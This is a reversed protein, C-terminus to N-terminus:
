YAWGSPHLDPLPRDLHACSWSGFAGQDLHEVLRYQRQVKNHAYAKGVYQIRGLLMNAYGRWSAMAITTHFRRRISNKVADLDSALMSAGLHKYGYEVAISIMKRVNSSIEGYTGFALGQFDSRSFISELPGKAGEQIGFHERDKQRMKDRYEKWIQKQRHQAAAGGKPNDRASHHEYAGGAAKPHITKVEWLHNIGAPFRECAPGEIHGDPVYHRLQKCLLPRINSTATAREGARIRHTFYDPVELTSQIGAQNFVRHVAYKIEDHHKRHGDGPLVVKCLNTGYPDCPIPSRTGGRSRKQPISEGELGALCSKKLGFYQQMAARFQEPQLRHCEMPIAWILSSSSQDVQYWARRHEDSIERNALEQQLLNARSSDLVQALSRQTAMADEHTGGEQLVGNEEGATAESGSDGPISGDEGQSLDSLAVQEDGPRSSPAYRGRARAPDPDALCGLENQLTGQSSETSLGANARAEEHMTQWARKFAEPYPGLHDSALFQEQRHGLPDYAGEGIADKLQTHYAGRIVTGEDANPDVRDICKPLIDLLAGVFAPRRLDWAKKVGGGKCRAPLQLRTQAVNDGLFEAATAAQVARLVSADVAEALQATEDPTMNRLWYTIKHQLSYYIMSWLEQPYEDALSEVYMASLEDVQMAKEALVAEVFKPEGLPVNFVKIGKCVGGDPCTLSGEKLGTPYGPIWKLAEWDQGPSYGKCKAINLRNGTDEEVEAAFTAIAQFVVHAPGEFYGDDMGFRACGGHRALTADAKQVHPHITLAHVASSTPSGQQTGEDSWLVEEDAWLPTRPGLKARLYPIYRRLTPHEMHRKMIAQRWISNFANELDITVVIHDSNSALTMRIGMVLLEASHKVGVGLQQPALTQVYENMMDKLVAKDVAKSFSEPCAVPRYDPTGGDEPIKKVLAVLNSAQLARMFWPDLRDNVMDTALGNMLELARAASSPAFIGQLARMHTNRLGSPGCAANPDLKAIIGSIDVQVEETTQYSYIDEGIQRQRTPHKDVMQQKVAPDAFDGRGLSELARAGKAIAGKRILRVGKAVRAAEDRLSERSAASLRQQAAGAAKRWDGILTGLDRVRWLRFRRRMANLKRTGGKGGRTPSHLLGHPFWLFWKQARERDLDNTAQERKSLIDIWVQIWEELLSHPITEITNMGRPMKSCEEWTLADIAGWGGAGIPDEEAPRFPPPQPNRRPDVQQQQTAAAPSNSGVEPGAQRHLQGSLLPFGDVMAEMCPINDCLSIFKCVLAGLGAALRWRGAADLSQACRRAQAFMEDLCVQVQRLDPDRPTSRKDVIWKLRGWEIATSEGTPQQSAAGMIIRTM